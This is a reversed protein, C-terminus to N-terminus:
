RDPRLATGIRDQFLSPYVDRMSDSDDSVRHTDDVAPRIRQVVNDQLILHLASILDRGLIPEGREVIYVRGQAVTDGFRVSTEFVGNVPIPEQLYTVFSVTPPVPHLLESVFHKHFLKAPLLSVASGTDFVMSVPVNENLFVQCMINGSSACSTNLVQVHSIPTRSSHADASTCTCTPTAADDLQESIQRM